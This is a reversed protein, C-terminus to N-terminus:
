GEAEPPMPFSSVLYRPLQADGSLPLWPDETVFLAALENAGAVTSRQGDVGSRELHPQRSLSAPPCASGLDGLVPVSM